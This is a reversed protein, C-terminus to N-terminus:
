HRAVVPVAASPAGILDTLKIQATAVGAGTALAIADPGIATAGLVGALSHEAIPLMQRIGPDSVFLNGGQTVLAVRGRELSGGGVISQSTGLALTRFHEGKDASLFVNGRMGYVVLYDPDVILGFFSGEYAVPVPVFRGSTQEQKLILGREGVIFVDDNLGRIAHLNYESPNDVQHLWPEWTDGGDITRFILNFAGVVYGVKDNQFWVDLLPLPLCDATASQGMTIKISRLIADDRKDASISAKNEYRQLLVQLAKRGDLQRSWTKGGDRTHIIVSDHGVAWGQNPSSFYVAVLDTSVPVPSQTWLNGGDDSVLVHGRAGVAVLSSGAVAVANIMSSAAMASMTAPEDLPDVFEAAYASFCHSM